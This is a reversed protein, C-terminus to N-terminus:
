AKNKLTGLTISEVQKRWYESSFTHNAGDVRSITIGIRQSIHRWKKDKSILLEFEAAVLDNGSLIISVAGDFNTIGQHMLNVYNVQNPRELQEGKTDVPAALLSTVNKFVGWIADKLDLKLSLTKRWFQPDVLKSLYYHKIMVNAKLKASTVWPNLLILQSVKRQPERQCFLLIASAADCLGWLNVNLMGPCQEKFQDIANDIDNTSNLFSDVEGDSDGMGHLDFRMVFFGQETLRRALLVFQRHSGVRTQPGGVIILVGQTGTLVAPRHIIGSLWRNDSLFCIPQENM